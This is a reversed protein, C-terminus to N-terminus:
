TLKNKIQVYQQPTNANQLSYINEPIYKEINQQSRLYHQMSFNSPKLQAMNNNLEQLFDATYIGLYPEYFHSDTNFFITSKNTAKYKNVLAQIDYTTLMPYDIALVIYTEPICNYATLIGALPGHEAFQPADTLIPLHSQITHNANLIIQQCYPQLLQEVVQWQPLTSYYLESKHQQMRTSNGGALILGIMLSVAM